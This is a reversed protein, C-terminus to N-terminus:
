VIGRLDDLQFIGAGQSESPGEFPLLSNRFVAAIM